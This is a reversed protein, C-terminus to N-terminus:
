WPIPRGDRFFGGSPADPPLTAAWVIGAAGEEVSRPAGAGGMATRVWGPCVANVLVGRAALERALVRTLANLAAKSASYVLSRDAGGWAREAVLAALRVLEDRTGVADVATRLNPPLRARQGESSSVMVVRAARALHPALADTLRAPGLVNVAVVERVSAPDARAPYVGANHVLADVCLGEARARAAFAAVSGPDAVDLPWCRADAGAAALDTAAATGEPARRAALVLRWGRAALRRASELGLGRNAGTVVALHSGM